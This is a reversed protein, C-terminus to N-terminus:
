VGLPVLFIGVYCPAFSLLLSLSFSPFHIPVQAGPPLQLFSSTEADLFARKSTPLDALVATLAQLLACCGTQPTLVSHFRCLNSGCSRTGWGSVHTQWYPRPIPVPGHPQICLGRSLAATPQSSITLPPPPSYSKLWFHECLFGTSGYFHPAMASHHVFPSAAMAAGRAMCWGRAGQVSSYSGALAPERASTVAM